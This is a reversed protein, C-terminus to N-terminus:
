NRLLWSLVRGISDSEDSSNDDEDDSDALLSDDTTARKAENSCSYEGGLHPVLLDIVEGDELQLADDLVSISGKRLANVDAGNEVLFKVLQLRKNEGPYNRPLACAAHLPTTESLYGNVDAGYSLLVKATDARWCRSAYHLATGGYSDINLSAGRAMLFDVMEPTGYMSAKLLAAEENAHIDAGNDLLIGAVAISCYSGHCNAVLATESIGNQANVDAGSELLLKVVEQYDNCAAEHLAYNVGEIVNVDAGSEILIKLTELVEKEETHCCATILATGYYGGRSNVEAGDSLLLAVIEAFGYSSAAQLANTGHSNVAHVDAGKEILIRVLELREAAKGYAECAAILITGHQDGFANM